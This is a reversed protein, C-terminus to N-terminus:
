PRGERPAENLVIPGDEGCVVIDEIRAGYVGPLLDRARRQVGHRGRAAHRQRRRPVPGRPRRARHRPRDPPLVGRRLGATTSSRAPPPTSRRAPSARDSPGRGAPRRRTCSRRVSRPVARGPGSDRRRRRHGVADAHHGLWLRRAHRRHRARDARGARHRSGVGRPAAVRLEPGLRRDRLPGDRPGGRRPARPGRARRRGRDPRRAPRRRDAAVVRDAAQAAATLLAVEDADKVMRLDRLVASALQIPRRGASRGGPPPLLHMALMTDSVAVVGPRRAHRRCRARLSRGDGGM